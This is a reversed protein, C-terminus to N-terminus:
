GRRVLGLKGSLAYLYWHLYKPAWRVLRFKSRGAPRDRWVSPVEGIKYGALYAKVALEMSVEFGGLSQIALGDLIQKRYMKFSNTVDRTPIGTLLHLSVSVLRSLWAKVRPGGLHGGGSIHRSACVVDCGADLKAYMAEITAPDDSGDGMMVVVVDGRAERFGTRLAGVVGRGWSNKVLRVNTRVAVVTRVVPVTPDDDEDYVVLVEHPLRLSGELIELTAGITEEERYVPIIVSLNM